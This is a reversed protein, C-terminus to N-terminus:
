KKTTIGYKKVFENRLFKLKELIDDSLSILKERTEEFREKSKKVEPNEFFNFFHRHNINWFEYYTHGEELRRQDNILWNPIYYYLTELEHPSVPSGKYAEIRKKVEEKFNPLLAITNDLENCRRKLVRLNKDHILFSKHLEPYSKQFDEYILKEVGKFSILPAVYINLDRRWYGIDRTELFILQKELKTILPVIIVESIEQIRPKEKEIRRERLSERILHTYIATIIALILTAVAQVGGSNENLWNWKWIILLMAILLLLITGFMKRQTFLLVLFKKTWNVNVEILKM